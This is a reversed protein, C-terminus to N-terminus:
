WCCDEFRTRLRWLCAFHDCLLILVSKGSPSELLSLDFFISLCLLKCLELCLSCWPVDPFMLSCRACASPCMPSLYCSRLDLSPWAHKCFTPVREVFVAFLLTSDSCLLCCFTSWLVRHKSWSLIFAWTAPFAPVPHTRLLDEILTRDLIIRSPVWCRKTLATVGRWVCVCGLGSLVLLLKVRSM